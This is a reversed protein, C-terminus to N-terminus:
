FSVSELEEKSDAFRKIKCWREYYGGHAFTGLLLYYDGNEKEIRRPSTPNGNRDLFYCSEIQGSELLCWKKPKTM